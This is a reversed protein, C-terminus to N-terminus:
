RDRRDVVGTATDPPLSEIDGLVDIADWISTTGTALILAEAAEHLARLEIQSLPVGEVSRKVERDWAEKFLTGAAIMRKSPM